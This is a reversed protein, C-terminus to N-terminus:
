TCHKCPYLRYAIYSHHNWLFSYFYSYINPLVMWRKVIYIAIKRPAWIFLGAFVLRQGSIPGISPWRRLRHGLTPVVDQTQQPLVYRTLLIVFLSKPSHAIFDSVWCITHLVTYIEVKFRCLWALIMLFDTNKNLNKSIDMIHWCKWLCFQTIKKFNQTACKYSFLFYPCFRIKSM